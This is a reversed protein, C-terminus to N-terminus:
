GSCEESAVSNSLLFEIVPLEKLHTLKPNKDKAVVAQVPVDFQILAAVEDTMILENHIASSLAHKLDIFKAIQPTLASLLNDRNINEEVYGDINVQKVSNTIKEALFCAHKSSLFNDILTHLDRKSLCPRVADHVLVPSDDPLGNDFLYRLGNNVSHIREEGGDIIVLKPHNVNELSTYMSDEPNIILVVLEFVDSKLFIDLTHDLVYRQNIKTYQKPQQKGFRLGVGAAPIIVVPQVVRTLDFEM